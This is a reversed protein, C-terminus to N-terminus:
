ASSPLRTGHTISDGIAVYHPKTYPPNNLLKAYSYIQVERLVVNSWHPLLLEFTSTKHFTESFLGLSFTGKKTNISRDKFPEENESIAFTLGRREGPLVDFDLTILPSNTTFRLLVGATTRAKEAAFTEGSAAALMEPSFRSYEMVEDIHHTFWAGTVEIRPDHGAIVQMSTDAQVPPSLSVLLGFFPLRFNM